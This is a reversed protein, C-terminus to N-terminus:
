PGPDQDPAPAAPAEPAPQEAPAEPAPAAAVEVNPAPVEAAEAGAAASQAAADLSAPPEGELGPAPTAGVGTHVFNDGTLMDDLPVLEEGRDSILTATVFIILNQRDEDVSDHRFLQGIFPIHSLIPVGERTKTSTSTILGGMIVTEGSQVIVDTEIHRRSFIPLKVLGTGGNVLDDNDDNDDNDRSYNSSSDGSAEYYEWKVFASIEPILALNITRLDAGVSPTATLEIGLEELTPTGQPVLKTRTVENGNADTEEYDELDYEEYYRFDEGVRIYAPRNNLATVRPVSLTRTTGSSELVHLVARFQPDTLVGQFTFNGGIAASEFATGSLSGGQNVRFRRDGSRPGGAIVYNDELVWDIGLESLDTVSTSVFRAEILVQPPVIDLAEILDESAALNEKTNKVILLHAKDSFYIDSGEPQPVFRTLVDIITPASEGENGLKPASSASLQGRGGALGALAGLGGGLGGGGGGGGGNGNGSPRVMEGGVLGKRLRFIRTELPLSTTTEESATAWILNEGVSFVVGLNRGVYDLIEALPTDEAHITLTGGGLDSDAIINIGEAAAIQAAFASLDVNDLHVTVNKRLAEQMKTPASRLSTEDGRINRRVRYTTPVIEQELIEGVMRDRSTPSKQDTAKRRTENLAKMIDSELDSLGPALPDKRAIESVAVIADSLRGEEFLSRARLLAPSDTERVPADAPPTTACGIALLLALAPAFPFATTKM